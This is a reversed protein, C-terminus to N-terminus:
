HTKDLEPPIARTQASDQRKPGRKLLMAFAKEIAQPDADPITEWAVTIPTQNHPKSM